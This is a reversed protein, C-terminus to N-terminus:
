LPAPFPFLSQPSSWTKCIVPFLWVMPSNIFLLVCFDLLETHLHLCQLDQCVHPLLSFDSLSSFWNNGWNCVVGKQCISSGGFCRCRILNSIFEQVKLKWGSMDPYALIPVLKGWYAPSFGTTTQSNIQWQIRDHPCFLGDGPSYALVAEAMETKVAPWVDRLAKIHSFSSLCVILSFVWFMLTVM